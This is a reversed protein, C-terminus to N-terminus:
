LERVLKQALAMMRNVYGIENDYWALIKVLHGDIVQTSLGDVIASRRDNCYDASVLPLGSYGLIERLRGSAAEQLVANVQDVTVSQELTFVCDSLSANTIPVRVAVGDIKGALQPFIEVIATASGTTTPILSNGCARTRRLDKHFEDLISQTNTINHITTIAIQQIAFHQLMVDIVPAICNTTCSAATVINHQASAYLHDNIGMVINLAGQKVPASVLVKQIGHTLYRSLAAQTKHQGTCDIVLDIGLSRWDIQDIDRTQSYSLPQNEICLQGGQAEVAKPWTGHISDYKLLHAATEVTGGIENIHVINIGPWGWAERLALRGMRGFGNIAIRVTM